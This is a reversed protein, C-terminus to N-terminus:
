HCSLNWIGELFIIESYFVTRLFLINTEEMPWPKGAEASNVDPVPDKKSTPAAGCVTPYKAADRAEVWYTGLVGEGWSHCGTDRSVALHRRLSLIEETSCGQPLYWTWLGFAVTFLSIERVGRSGRDGSASVAVQDKHVKGGVNKAFVCTCTHTHTCTHTRQKTKGGVFLLM